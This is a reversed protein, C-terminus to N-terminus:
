KYKKMGYEYRSNNDGDLKKGLKIFLRGVAKKGKHVTNKVKELRGLLTKNYAKNAEVAKKGATVSKALKDDFDSRTMSGKTAEAARKYAADARFAADQEDRGIKDQWKTYGKVNSSIKVTKGNKTEYIDATPEGVDYYYRWKGNVKKRYLYKHAKHELSNVDQLGDKTIIYDSMKNVKEMSM